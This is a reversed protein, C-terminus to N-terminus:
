ALVFGSLFRLDHLVNDRVLTWAALRHDINDQREQLKVLIVLVEKCIDRAEFVGPLVLNMPLLGDGLRLGEYLVALRHIKLRTGFM